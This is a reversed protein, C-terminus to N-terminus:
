SAHQRRKGRIINGIASQSMEWRESIRSKEGRVPNSAWEARIQACQADTLKVQGNREGRNTTGHRIKDAENEVKTKWFINDAANNKKNGDEHAAHNCPAIPAGRFTWAVIKNLTWTSGKNNKWLGVALYSGRKMVAPRLWASGKANLVKGSPHVLYAPNPPFPRCEEIEQATPKPWTDQM